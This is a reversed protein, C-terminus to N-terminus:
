NLYPANYIGEIIIIFIFYYYHYLVHCLVHCLEHCYMACNMACYMVCNMACYLVCYMVCYMDCHMACNMGCNMVCNVACNMVCHMGHMTDQQCGNMVGISEKIVGVLNQRHRQTLFRGTNLTKYRIYSSQPSSLGGSLVEFLAHLYYFVIEM